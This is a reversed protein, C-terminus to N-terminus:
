EEEAEDDIPKGEILDVVESLARNYEFHTRTWNTDKSHQNILKVIRNREAGVGANYALVGQRYILEQIDSM